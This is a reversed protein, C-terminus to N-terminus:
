MAMALYPQFPSDLKAGKRLNEVAWMPRLNKYNFCEKQQNLFSLNFCACPIIHDIHWEGYNDWSMGPKFQKSLHRRLEPITCGILETTRGGKSSKKLAMRIRTRINCLIKYETDTKRRNARYFAATKNIMERNKDRYEKRKEMFIEYNERYQKKRRHSIQEKNTIRHQKMQLLVKVRNEGYYDHCKKNIVEKNSQNYEAKYRLMSERNEVWYKKMKGIQNERNRLHWDDRRKKVCMKCDNRFGDPSDDRIGFFQDTLPLTKHCKVCTKMEEGEARALLVNQVTSVDKGAM